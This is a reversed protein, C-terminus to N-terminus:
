NLPLLCALETILPIILLCQTGPPLFHVPSSVFNLAPGTQETRGAAVGDYVGRAQLCWIERESATPSSLGWYPIDSRHSVEATGEQVRPLPRSPVGLKCVHEQGGAGHGAPM